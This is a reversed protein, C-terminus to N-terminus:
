SKVLASLPEPLESTFISVLRCFPHERFEALGVQHLSAARAPTFVNVVREGQLEENVSWFGQLAADFTTFKTGLENGSRLVAFQYGSCM